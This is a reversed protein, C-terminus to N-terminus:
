HFLSFIPEFSVVDTTNYIGLIKRSSNLYQSLIPGVSDAVLTVTSTRDTGLEPSHTFGKNESVYVIRM